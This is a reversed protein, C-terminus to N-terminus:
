TRAAAVADDLSAYLDPEGQVRAKALVDRVQGIPHALALSIGERQLDTTLEVLMEVASIDLSPAAQGDIVVAKTGESVLARVRDRVYDANGDRRGEAFGILMLSASPGFLDLYTHGSIDPLGLSPLGPRTLSTGSRGFGTLTRRADM